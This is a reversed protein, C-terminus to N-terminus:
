LRWNDAPSARKQAEALDVQALQAYHEVMDLESHGLLAKLELVNGGNRLFNIAFTHRFRHVTARPVNARDALRKILQLLNNPHIHVGDRTAFLPQADVAHSRDALYRWIAKAVSKGLFVTREKDKTEPLVM